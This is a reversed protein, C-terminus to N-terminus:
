VVNREEGKVVELGTVWIAVEGLLGQDIFVPLDVLLAQLAQM